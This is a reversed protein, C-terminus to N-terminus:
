EGEFPAGSRGAGVTGGRGGTLWWWAGSAKRAAGEVAYKTDRGPGTLMNAGGRGKEEM